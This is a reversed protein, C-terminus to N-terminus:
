SGLLHPALLEFSADSFPSVQVRSV